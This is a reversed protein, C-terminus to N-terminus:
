RRKPPEANLRGLRRPLRLDREALIRDRGRSAPRARSEAVFTGAGARKEPVGASEREDFAEPPM